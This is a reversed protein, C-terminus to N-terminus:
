QRSSLYEIMKEKLQDSALNLAKIGAKKSNSSGGKIQEVSTKFTEQGTAIDIISM